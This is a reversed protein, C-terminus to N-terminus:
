QALSALTARAADAGGFSANLTLARQLSDRAKARDGVSAYALGLHYLIEPTNPRQKLSAELSPVALSGLNKKYYIWGLTDDVEASEPLRQKASTALQLAIDLNTGDEAYLYALNNAAVPADETVKLTAEYWQRAEPRKNQLELIMGIMTRASIAKPDRAVVADFQARAEDLRKQQMYVQALQMYGAQFRPDVTIARRLPEEARAPQGARLYTRAVLALVDPSDPRKARAAEVRAIAADAHGTQLELNALGSIADFADPSLTLAREFAARAGAADGRLTLLTGNLTHV